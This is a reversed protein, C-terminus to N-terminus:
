MGQAGDTLTKILNDRLKLSVTGNLLRSEQISRQVELRVFREIDNNNNGADISFNLPKSFRGSIDSHNGRSSVVIKIQKTSKEMLEDIANLLEYRREPICEDLADIVITASDNELLKLILAKTEILTLRRPGFEEEQLEQYKRAM